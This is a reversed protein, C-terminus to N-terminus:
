RGDDSVRSVLIPVPVSSNSPTPTGHVFTRGAQDLSQLEQVLAKSGVVWDREVTRAKRDLVPLRERVGSLIGAGVETDTAPALLLDRARDFEAVGTNRAHDRVESDHPDSGDRRRLLSEPRRSFWPM